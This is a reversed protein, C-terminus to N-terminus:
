AHLDLVVGPGASVWAAPPAEVAAPRPGEIAQFSGLTLGAAQLHQRLAESQQRALTVVQTQTSWLALDVAHSERLDTKLWLEGYDQTQSHLNITWQRPHEASDPHREIDLQVPNADHFPLLMSFASTAAGPGIQQASADAQACRVQAAELDDIAHQLAQLTAAHRQADPDAQQRVSSLVQHLLHKLDSKIPRQAQALQAEAGLAALLSQWIDASGLHQMSLQMSRWQAQLDPRDLRALLADLAGPQLVQLAHDLGPERLLLNGLRSFAGSEPAAASATRAITAGQTAAETRPAVGQGDPVLHLQWPGQPNAQVRLNLTAGLPWNLATPLEILRGQILLALQDARTEVTAQVVQGDQLGLARARNAEFLPASAAGQAFVPLIRALVATADTVPIM